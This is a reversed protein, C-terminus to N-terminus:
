KKSKGRLGNRVYKDFKQISSVVDKMVTDENSNFLYKAIIKPIVIFVTLFSTLATIAPVIYDLLRANGTTPKILFLIPCAIILLSFLSMISFSLWFFVCKMIRKSKLTKSVHDSYSNLITDYDDTHKKLSDIDRKKLDDDSKVRIGGLRLYNTLLDQENTPM